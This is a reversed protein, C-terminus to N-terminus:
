NRVALGDKLALRSARLAPVAGMALGSVLIICLYILDRPGFAPGSLYFGYQRDMWEAFVSFGVAQLTIGLGIGTLTLFGSEFIFLLALHQPQAGLSRLIAMERRRENLGALITSAMAALGVLLVLASIGKLISDIQSLGRWLESLTVGPIVALLPEPEFQNIARQLGLTSIRSKTRVFFSTIADIQIDEKRIDQASVEAGKRPAAGSQWDIHIAEMGYLTVYLSQDLATGTPKLIGVVHFPKDDHKQIGETRTVGHSLIVSQGLAYGLKKQVESGIVVDWIGVAPGGSDFDVRQDRRFRYHEDFNQDTAVVRFGRHGDGLSYPITWAVEPMAKIQQYSQWSINNSAAGM